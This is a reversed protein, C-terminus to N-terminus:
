TELGCSLHRQALSFLDKLHLGKLHLGRYGREADPKLSVGHTANIVSVAGQGGEMDIELCRGNQLYKGVIYVVGGLFGRQAKLQGNEDFM